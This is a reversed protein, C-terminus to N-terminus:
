KLAEFLKSIPYKEKLYEQSAKPLVKYVTQYGEELGQQYTKTENKLSLHQHYTFYLASGIIATSIAFYWWLFRISIKETTHHIKKKLLSSM